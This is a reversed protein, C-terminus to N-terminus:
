NFHKAKTFQEEKVKLAVHYIYIYIDQLSHTEKQILVSSFHFDDLALM